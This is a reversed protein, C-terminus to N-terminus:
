RENQVIGTVGVENPPIPFVYKPDNPKLEIITGAYNRIITTALRTELNLRRLDQWRINGAFPFEKRREHLVKDLIEDQDNTTYDTYTGRVYRNRLIRNLDVSADMINGLRANCEARIYYAETTTLGCFVSAEGTYSGKYKVTVSDMELYFYLKRLDSEEYSRYLMTDVLGLNTNENPILTAYPFGQAYFVIENNGTVFNPFRFPLSISPVTNFDIISSNSLLSSDAYLKARAFDSMCLYIRALLLYAANKTPQTKFKSDSNLLRVSSIADQLILDYTDYVSSRQIVQGIDPTTKLSLGIDSHATAEVFPMCFLSALELYSYARFFLAQGKISNFEAIENSEIELNSLGDLVINSYYIAQYASTYDASARGEFIDKNWLYSNREIVSISQLGASRIYLNDSGLIGIGPMGRNFVSTNNLLDQYDKLSNFIIDGKSRPVNLWDTAKSCGLALLIVLYFIFPQNKM